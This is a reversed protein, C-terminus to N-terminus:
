AARVLDGNARARRTQRPTRLQDARDEARWQELEGRLAAAAEECAESIRVNMARWAPTMPVTTNAFGECFLTALYDMIEASTIQRRRAASRAKPKQPM